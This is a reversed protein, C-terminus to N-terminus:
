IIGSGHLTIYNNLLLSFSIILLLAVGHAILQPHQIRVRISVKLILALAVLAGIIYLIIAITNKPTAAVTAWPGSVHVTSVPTADVNEQPTEETVIDAGKIAVFMESSTPTVSVVPSIIEQPPPTQVIPTSTAQISVNSAVTQAPRGFLQVVFVADKGNYTGQATAIGIQTFKDNLINARHLPSNLWADTVDQSDSFNVALNEGAYSFHYGVDEFWYWPTTGEPSTHAFYDKQAMDNAKEQAAAVLLPDIGLPAIDQAIRSENTQDVLADPFILAFLGSHPGIFFIQLIFVLEFLVTGSAIFLASPRRLIHPKYDNEHHPIFYKKLVRKM